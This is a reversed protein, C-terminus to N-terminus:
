MILGQRSIPSYMKLNSNLNEILRLNCNFMKLM